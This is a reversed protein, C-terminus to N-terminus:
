SWLVNAYTLLRKLLRLFGHAAYVIM